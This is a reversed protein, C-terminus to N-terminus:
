KRKINLIIGFTILLLYSSINSFDLRGSLSFSTVSGDSYTHIDRNSVDALAIDEINMVPMANLEFSAEFNSESGSKSPNQKNIFLLFAINRFEKKTIETRQEILMTYSASDTIDVYNMKKNQFDYYGYYVKNERKRDHLPKYTVVVPRDTATNSM